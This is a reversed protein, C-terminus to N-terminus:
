LGVGCDRTGHAALHEAAAGALLAESTVEAGVCALLGVRTRVARVAGGHFVVQAGVDKGHM